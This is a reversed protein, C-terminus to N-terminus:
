PLVATLAAFGLGASIADCITPDAEPQLDALGSSRIDVSSGARAFAAEVEDVLLWGALEGEVIGHASIAGTLSGGHLVISFSGGILPLVDFLTHLRGGEISGSFTGLDGTETFSQGAAIGSCRGMVDSWSCASAADSLCSARDADQSCVGSPAPTSGTAAVRALHVAVSPDDVFDDVDTIRIAVLVSGSAIQDRLMGDLGDSAVIEVDRRAALANDVGHAGTIPSVGDPQDQCGGAPAGVPNGDAGDLDVGFARDVADPRQQFSAIVLTLETTTPRGADPPGGDPRGEDIQCGCLWVTALALCVARSV